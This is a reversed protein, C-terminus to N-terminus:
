ILKKFYGREWDSSTIWLPTFLASFLREAHASINSNVNSILLLATQYHVSEGVDSLCALKKLKDIWIRIVTNHVPFFEEREGEKRAWFKFSDAFFM